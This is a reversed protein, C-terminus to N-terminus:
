AKSSLINMFKLLLGWRRKSCSQLLRNDDAMLTAVVDDLLKGTLGKAQYLAALEEREEQRHHEIEWREEEIVRHLRELRGLGFPRKTRGEM